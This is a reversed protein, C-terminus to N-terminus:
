IVEKTLSYEVRYLFKALRVVSTAECINNWQKLEPSLGSILLSTMKNLGLSECSAILQGKQLFFLKLGLDERLCLVLEM